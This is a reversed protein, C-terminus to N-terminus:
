INANPNFNKKKKLFSTKAASTLVWAAEDHLAKRETLRLIVNHAKSESIDMNFTNTLAVVLLSVLSAGWICTVLIVIRAPLCRPFLDGYGVTTMTIIILWFCNWYYGFAENYTEECVRIAHGLLFLSMIFYLIVVYLPSENMISKIAFFKGGDCGYMKCLRTARPSAFISFNLLSRIVM